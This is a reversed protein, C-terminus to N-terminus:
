KAPRHNSAPEDSIEHFCNQENLATGWHLESQASYNL